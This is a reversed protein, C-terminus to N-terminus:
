SIKKKRPSPKKSVSLNSLFPTYYATIYSSLLKIQGFPDGAFEVEWNVTQGEGETIKTKARNWLSLFDEKSCNMFFKEVPAALDTGSLQKLFDSNDLVDKTNFSEDIDVSGLVTSILQAVSPALSRGLDFAYDLSESGTMPYLTYTKSNYTTKKM